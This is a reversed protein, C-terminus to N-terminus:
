GLPQRDKRLIRPDPHRSFVRQPMVLAACRARQESSAVIREGIQIGRHAGVRLWPHVPAGADLQAPERQLTAIAVGSSVFSTLGLRQALPAVIRGADLGGSREDPAGIAPLTFAHTQTTTAITTMPTSPTTAIAPIPREKKECCTSVRVTEAAFAARSKSCTFNRNAPSFGSM